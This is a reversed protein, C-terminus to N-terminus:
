SNHEFEDRLVKRRRGGKRRGLRANVPLGTSPLLTPLPPPSPPPPPSPLPWTAALFIQADAAIILLVDPFPILLLLLTPLLLLLTLLLLLLGLGDATRAELIRVKLVVAEEDEPWDSLCGVVWCSEEVVWDSGAM